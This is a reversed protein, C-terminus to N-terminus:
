ASAVSSEVVYRARLEQVINVPRGDSIAAGNVNVVPNVFGSASTSFAERAALCEDM